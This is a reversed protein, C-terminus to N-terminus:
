RCACEKVMMDPLAKVVYDATDTDVYLIALSDSSSAVCCLGPPSATEEEKDSEARIASLLLQLTAHNSM